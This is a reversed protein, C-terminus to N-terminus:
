AQQKEAYKHRFQVSYDTETQIQEDHPLTLETHLRQLVPRSVEETSFAKYEEKTVSSKTVNEDEYHTIIPSEKITHSCTHRRNFM